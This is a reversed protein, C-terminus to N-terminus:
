PGGPFRPSARRACRALSATRSTARRRPKAQRDRPRPGRRVTRPGRPTAESLASNLSLVVQSFAVKNLTADRRSGKPRRRDEELADPGHRYRLLVLLVRGCGHLAADDRNGVTARRLGVLGALQNAIEEEARPMRDQEVNDYLVFRFLDEVRDFLGRPGTVRDDRVAPRADRFAVHRDRREDRHELSGQRTEALQETGERKLFDAARGHQGTGLRADIMATEHEADGSRRVGAAERHLLEDEGLQAVPDPHETSSVPDPGRGRLGRSPPGRSADASPASKRRHLAAYPLPCRGGSRGSPSPGAEPRM